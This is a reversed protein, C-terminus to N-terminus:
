RTFQLHRQKSLHPKTKIFNKTKNIYLFLKEIIQIKQVNKNNKKLEPGDKEGERAAGKNWRKSESDTSGERRQDWNIM